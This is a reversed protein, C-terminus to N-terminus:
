SNSKKEAWGFFCLLFLGTSVVLIELRPVYIARNRDILGSVYQESKGEARAQEVHVRLGGMGFTALFCVHLFLMTTILLRVWTKKYRWALLLLLFTVAVSILFANM